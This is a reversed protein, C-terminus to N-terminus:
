TTLLSADVGGRTPSVLVGGGGADGGPRALEGEVPPLGNELGVREGSWTGDAAAHELFRVFNVSKSRDHLIM